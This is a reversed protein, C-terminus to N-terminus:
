RCCFLLLDTVVGVSYKMIVVFYIMIVVFGTKGNRMHQGVLGNNVYAHPPHVMTASSLSLNPPRPPLAPPDRGEIEENGLQSSCEEVPSNNGSNNDNNINNSSGSNNEEESNSDLKSSSTTAPSENNDRSSSCNSSSQTM